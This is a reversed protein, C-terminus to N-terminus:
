YARSRNVIGEVPEGREIQEMKKLIVESATEPDPKSACHPTVVVNPEDWYPHDAPLPETRFVDLIAGAMHGSRVADLLADDDIVEGRGCNILYSGKKLCALSKRNLLNDTSTTRPLLSVLIGTENLFQEFESDGSYSKIGAVDKRTNSFGIVQFGLNTLAEACACGLVGMGLIGVCSEWAARFHSHFPHTWQRSKYESTHIHFGIVHHVVYTVIGNTLGPDTMRVIPIKEISSDKLLDEVGAWMSFIVKLNPYRALVGLPPRAAIAFEIDEIRGADPWIRLDLNPARRRLEIEWREPSEETTVFLVAGAM